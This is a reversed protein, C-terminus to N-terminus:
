EATEKLSEILEDPTMFEFGAARYLDILDPPGDEQYCLVIMRADAQKFQRSAVLVGVVSPLESSDKFDCGVCLIGSLWYCRGVGPFRASQGKGNPAWVAVFPKQTTLFNPLSQAEVRHQRKALDDAIASEVVNRDTSSVFEGNVRARFRQSTESGYPRYAYIKPGTTKKYPHSQGDSREIMVPLERNSEACFEVRVKKATNNSCGVHRAIVTDARKMWQDTAFLMKLAKRM